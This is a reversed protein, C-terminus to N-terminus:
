QILYHVAKELDQAELYLYKTYIILLKRGIQIIKKKIKKQVMM